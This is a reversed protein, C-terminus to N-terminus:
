YSDMLKKKAKRLLDEKPLKNFKAALIFDNETLGDRAHTWLEVLVQNWGQWCHAVIDVQCASAVVLCISEPSIEYRLMFILTIIRRNLLVM